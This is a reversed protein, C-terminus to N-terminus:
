IYLSGNSKKAFGLNKVAINGQTYYDQITGQYAYTTVIKSEFLKVYDTDASVKNVGIIMMTLCIILALMVNLRKTKM